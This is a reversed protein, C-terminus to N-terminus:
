LRGEAKLEAPTKVIVVGNRRAWNRVANWQFSVSVKEASIKKVTHPLKEKKANKVPNRWNYITMAGVNFIDCLNKTTLQM